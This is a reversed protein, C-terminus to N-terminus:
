EEIVKTHGLNRRFGDEFMKLALAYDRAEIPSTILHFETDNEDAEAADPECAIGCVFNQVRHKNDLLFTAIDVIAAEMETMSEPENTPAESAVTFAPKFSVIKDTPSM